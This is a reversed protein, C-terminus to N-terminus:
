LALIGCDECHPGGGRGWGFFISCNSYGREGVKLLRVVVQSLSFCCVTFNEKLSVCSNPPSLGKLWKSAPPVKM